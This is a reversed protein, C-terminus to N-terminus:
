WRSNVLAALEEARGPGEGAGQVPCHALLVDVARFPHHQVECGAMGVDHLSLEDLAQPHFGGGDGAGEGAQFLLADDTKM